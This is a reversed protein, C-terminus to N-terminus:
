AAKQKTKKHIDDREGTISSIYQVNFFPNGYLSSEHVTLAYYEVTHGAAVKLFNQKKTVKASWGQWKTTARTITPDVEEEVLLNLLNLINSRGVCTLSRLDIDKDCMAPQEKTFLSKIRALIGRYINDNYGYYRDFTSNYIFKEQEMVHQFAKGMTM